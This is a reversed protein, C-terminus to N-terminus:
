FRTSDRANRANERFPLVGSATIERRLFAATYEVALIRNRLPPGRNIGPGCLKGQLGTGEYSAFLRGLRPDLHSTGFRTVATTLALFSARNQNIDYYDINRRNMLWRGTPLDIALTPLIRKSM